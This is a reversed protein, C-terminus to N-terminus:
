RRRGGLAVGYFEIAALKWKGAVANDILYFHFFRGEMRVSYVENADALDFLDSWNVADDLANSWGIKVQGNNVFGTGQFELRLGDVYVERGRPHLQVPRSTLEVVFAGSTVGVLTTIGGSTLEMRVRESAM